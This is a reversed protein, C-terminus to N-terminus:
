WKIVEEFVPTKISSVRRYGRKRNRGGGVRDSVFGLSIMSQSIRTYVISNRKDVSIGIEHLLDDTAIEDMGRVIDEIRDIWIDTMVRKDQEIVCLDYESDDLWLKEGNKVRFAAEAHLHPMIEKIAAIDLKDRCSVPWYRRNGTVDRLYPGEPNVTGVFVCQRGSEITNRGYPPRFVDHTRSLFAKLDNVEAKRMTSIEPFEVVLKGQMKMLADKNEIDKFDDLFYDEDNITAMVRSLFSKGAYQRGELIIMTDFKIGPKMARAALGCIFKRGVLSLYNKPQNNDSVYKYLWDDLRSTGDWVLSNFYDSAPNITNFPLTATSEIADAIRNKGTKLDWKRELWAEMRVYDFDMLQRVKFGEDLEWPPCRRVIIKKAFSDYAFVGNLQEDNALILLLNVTSRPLVTGNKSTQLGEQWDPIPPSLDGGLAQSGDECPLIVGEAAQEPQLSSTSAGQIKDKVADLGKSKHLDNFDTEGKVADPYVLKCNLLNAAQKGYKLGANIKKEHDNDAAIIIESLPHIKKVKPAIQTINFADFAVYVTAGTAEHISAGTAFGECLIVTDEGGEIKFWNGLKKGNKLIYKEGDESITQYSWIQKEDYIPILLSKERQLVGYPKIGKKVLYPHSPDAENLFLIDDQAEIATKEHLEKEEKEQREKELRLRQAFEQKEKETFKKKSKSHWSHCEGIRWDGYFGVGFDGDIKLRYFGKKKGKPDGSIQYDHRKDDAKIDSASAPAVGHTSMANIFDDIIEQM